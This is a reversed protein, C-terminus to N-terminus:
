YLEEDIRKMIELVCHLQNVNTILMRIDSYQYETDNVKTFTILNLPLLISNKMISRRLTIGCEKGFQNFFNNAYGNIIQKEHSIDHLKYPTLMNTPFNLRIGYEIINYTDQCIIHIDHNFSIHCPMWLIDGNIQYNIQYNIKSATIDINYIMTVEDNVYSMVIDVLVSIPLIVSLHNAVSTYKIVIHLVNSIPPIVSVYRNYFNLNSLYQKKTITQMDSIFQSKNLLCVDVTHEM